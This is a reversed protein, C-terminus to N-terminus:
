PKSCAATPPTPLRFTRPEYDCPVGEADLLEALERESEHAFRPPRNGRFNRFDM